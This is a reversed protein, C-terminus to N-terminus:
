KQQTTNRCKQEGLPVVKVNWWYDGDKCTVLDMYRFGNLVPWIIYRVFTYAWLLHWWEINLPNVYVARYWDTLEYWKRPFMLWKTYSRDPQREHVEYWTIKTRM